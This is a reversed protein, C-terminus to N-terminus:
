VRVEKTESDSTKLLKALGQSLEELTDAWCNRYGRYDHIDDAYRYMYNKLGSYVPRETNVYVVAGNELNKIFGSCGLQIDFAMTSMPLGLRDQLLISTAPMRYDPTQSLFVLLDIESKDINNDAILKEAAAFCLDSACTNEDVFRRETVGVKDVVKKVEEEPWIDLDYHYNDIVRKPVCASMATIGVNKFKIIAM